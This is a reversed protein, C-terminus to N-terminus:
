SPGFPLLGLWSGLGLIALGAASAFLWGSGFSPLHGELHCTGSGPDHRVHVETGVPYASIHEEHQQQSNGILFTHLLAEASRVRLHLTWSTGYNDTLVESRAEEVTGPIRQWRTRIAREDSATRVAQIAIALAFAFFTLAAAQTVDM